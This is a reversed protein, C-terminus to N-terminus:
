FNVAKSKLNSGLQDKLKKMDKSIKSDVVKSYIQTTRISNHGLIKSVTEIPMGNALTITTAFTHRALHTTLNKDIGCLDAIEKLYANMKQNSKVPLLRGKNNSEPCDSYKNLIELAQPLLPIPSRGGTKHRYIIIWKDGDIGTTVDDPTLAEIDSYAMGTYCSFLFIDRVIGLRQISFQKETLTELEEPTLYGRNTEKYTCKFNSFPDRQLWDNLIAIHIVKKLNKIHKMTTNHSCKERTKLFFEFNTVFQNNLDDLFSDSKHYQFSIFNKVKVQTALYHQLTGYVFDVGVRKKLQDNHYQFIEILSHKRETTGSVANRVADVTIEKGTSELVLFQKQVGAKLNSLGTNFIRAEESNGKMCSADNDWNDPHIKRNASIETRRGDVTIRLYVPIMGNKDTKSRRLYFLVSLTHKM